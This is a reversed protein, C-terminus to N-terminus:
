CRAPSHSCFAGGLRQALPLSCSRWRERASIGKPLEQGHLPSCLKLFTSPLASALLPTHLPLPATPCHWEQTAKALSIQLLRGRGEALQM